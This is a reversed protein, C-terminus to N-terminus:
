SEFRRALPVRRGSGFSESTVKLVPPAQRRKYESGAVLRAVREVTPADFGAAAAAEPDLGRDVLLELIADLVPYPPLSDEDRQGPALEASPPKEITARPIVDAGAVENIRRALRYALTKPVDGLPALGGAMDGYLTCYGTALESRNGTALPLHGFKNSLAMLVACRVRAQLNEETEDPARGEFSPALVDLFGQFLGDVPIESLDIGLNRALARADTLSGASSYRTPMAVGVVNGPGLARAAIVAVLASDLGGSLGLVASRFGTKRAYDRTGTVLAALLADADTEEIERVEGTGAGLDALVLDEEFEAARALPRGDAAFALSHGDFVLEDNGGVQNVFVVPLGHRRAVDRLMAPRAGRRGLTFPSAAVNILVAAGGAALEAVPEREYLRPGAADAASWIDERITIGLTTGDLEAAAVAPAPEFHRREDSVDCTPLLTKAHVSRVAGDDLLAAANQLGRGVPRPDPRVHGVVAAIGRCARAVHDLAELNREVFRPRELLEGPPYGCLVLESFVCLRAGLERARELAGLVKRLNGDFDGVTPNLQALAIRM